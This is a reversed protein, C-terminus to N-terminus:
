AEVAKALDSLVSLLRLSRRAGLQRRRRPRRLDRLAAKTWAAPVRKPGLWVGACLQAIRYESLSGRGRCVDCVDGWDCPTTATWGYGNCAECRVSYQKKM